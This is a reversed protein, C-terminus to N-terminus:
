IARANFGGLNLENQPLRGQLASREDYIVRDDPPCYVSCIDSGHIKKSQM